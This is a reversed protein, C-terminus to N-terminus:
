RRASGAGLSDFLACTVDEISMQFPGRDIAMSEALCLPKKGNRPFLGSERVNRGNPWRASDAWLRRGCDRDAIDPERRNPVDRASRAKDRRLLQM